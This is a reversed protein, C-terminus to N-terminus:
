GAHRRGKGSRKTTATDDAILRERLRGHARSLMSGVNGASTGLLEAIAAYDYGYAHRLVLAGRVRPPLEALAEELADLRSSGPGSAHQVRTGEGRSLASLAVRRVRDRRLHDLAAHTAIGHLWARLPRQPDYQEWRDWARVFTEQTL